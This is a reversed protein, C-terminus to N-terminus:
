HSVAAIFARTRESKPSGFIHDPPGSEEIRGGQLFYVVDATERAFGLEHTVMLMSLGGAALDRLISLVEGVLEPDLASTPEDLLLLQPDLALARAIAVRQQEGGSLTEPYSEERHRMGVRALEVQARERAEGPTRGLVSVQAEMVNKLATMHPFLNFRQFVMPMQTRVPSLKQDGHPSKDGSVGVQKGDFIVQGTDPPTLFNVCRLLTSKGGGSPGILAVVEGRQVSLDIDQLIPEGDFFKSVRNLQLLAPGPERSSQSPILTSM